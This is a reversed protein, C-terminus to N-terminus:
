PSNTLHETSKRRTARIYCFIAVLFTTALGGVIVGGGAVSEELASGHHHHHKKAGPEGTPAIHPDQHGTVKNGKDSSEHDHDNETQPLSVPSLHPAESLSKPTNHKQGHKGLRRATPAEANSSIPAVNPERLIPVTESAEAFIVFAHVTILFLLFYQAM